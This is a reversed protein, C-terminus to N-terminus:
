SFLAGIEQRMIWYVVITVISGCVSAVEWLRLPTIQVGWARAAALEHSGLWENFRQGFLLEIPRQLRPDNLVRRQQEIWHQHIGAFAKLYFFVFMFFMVTIIGLGMIEWVKDGGKSISQLYGMSAMLILMFVMGFGFYFGIVNSMMRNIGLAWREVVHHKKSLAELTERKGPADPDHGLVCDRVAHMYADIKERWVRFMISGWLSNDAAYQFSQVYTAVPFTFFNIYVMYRTAEGFLGHNRHGPDLALGPFTLFLGCFIAMGFYMGKRYEEVAKRFEEQQDVIVHLFPGCGYDPTLVNLGSWYFAGYAGFVVGLIANSLLCSFLLTTGFEKFATCLLALPLSRPVQQKLASQAVLPLGGM